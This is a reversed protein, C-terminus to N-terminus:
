NSIDKVARKNRRRNRYNLADRKLSMSPYTDGAFHLGIAGILGFPSYLLVVFFIYFTIHTPIQLKGQYIHNGLNVFLGLTIALWHNNIFIGLQHVLIGRFMLEETIPNFICVGILFLVKPLKQRPTLRVMVRYTEDEVAESIKWIKLIRSLGFVFIIYCIIGVIFSVIPFIEFKLGVSTFNWGNIYTIFLFCVLSIQNILMSFGLSSKPRKVKLGKEHSQKKILWRQNISSILNIASLYLVFCM